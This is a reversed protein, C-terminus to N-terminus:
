FKGAIRMCVRSELSGGTSLVRRDTNVSAPIITIPTEHGDPEGSGDRAVLKVLENLILSFHFILLGSLLQLGVQTLLDVAEQSLCALRLASIIRFAAFLQPQLGPVHQRFWSEPPIEIEFMM